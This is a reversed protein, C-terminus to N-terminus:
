TGMGFFPLLKFCVVLVGWVGDHNASSHLGGIYVLTVSSKGLLNGM